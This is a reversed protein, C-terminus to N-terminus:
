VQSGTMRFDQLLGQTTEKIFMCSTILGHLNSIKLFNILIHHVNILYVLTYLKARKRDDSKLIFSEYIIRDFYELITGKSIDYGLVHQGSFYKFHLRFYCFKAKSFFLSSKFLWKMNKLSIKQSEKRVLSSLSLAKTHM